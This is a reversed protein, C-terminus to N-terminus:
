ADKSQFRRRLAQGLKARVLRPTTYEEIQLMIPRRHSHALLLQAWGVIAGFTAQPSFYAEWTRRAALGMETAQDQWREVLEPIDNVDREPVRLSFEEWRPGLPLELDDAIIVPVSGAEMAEFLRISSSSVGRPCIVFKSRRTVDRFTDRFQDKNTKEWWHGTDSKASSDIVVGGPHRWQVIRERIPYARSSGVFSFLIDKNQGEEPTFSFKHIHASIYHAPLAWGQHVWRRPVAPYLGRLAPFQKDDPSYVVLKGGHKRYFPSRRLAELCCGYGAVQIPALILAASEPEPALTHATTRQLAFGARLEEFCAAALPPIGTAVQDPPLLYVHTAPNGPQM